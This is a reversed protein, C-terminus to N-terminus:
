DMSDKRLGQEQSEERDYDSRMRDLETPTEESVPMSQRKHSFSVTNQMQENSRIFMEDGFPYETNDETFVNKFTPPHQSDIMREFNKEFSQM